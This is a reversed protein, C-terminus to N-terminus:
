IRTSRRIVPTSSLVAGLGLLTRRTNVPINSGIQVYTDFVGEYVNIEKEFSKRVEKPAEQVAEVIALGADASVDSAVIVDFVETAQEGSISELVKSSTALETAQSENIGGEQQIVLTVVQAVQENSIVTSELEGVVAEFKEVTLETKLVENFTEILVKDTVVEDFIAGIVTTFEDNSLKGKLVEKVLSITGEDSLDDDFVNQFMVKLEEKNLDSDLLDNVANTIELPSAKEDFVEAMVTNLQEKNLDKTVIDSVNDIKPIDPLSTDVPKNPTTVPTAIPSVSVTTNPFTSQVITETPIVIVLSSTTETTLPVDIKPMPEVTTPPSTTEIPRVEIPQAITGTPVIAVSEEVTPSPPITVPAIYVSTTTQEIPPAVTTTMAITTLTTTTAPKTTSTTTSTEQPLTSTSTTVYETTTTSPELTTTTLVTSSTTTTSSSTTTTSSSTTTTTTPVVQTTFASDPVIQWGQNNINWALMYCADGTAEFYWGDLSYQGEPLVFNTTTSWQCGKLDWTGFEATDGIQVTGGDDAAVIFSITENEPINIFGTYHIMFWDDPCQQFPEYNFNRNINDEVETGCSQYMADSKTPIGSPIAYGVANLGPTPDAYAVNPFILSSLWVLIPIWSGHRLSLKV